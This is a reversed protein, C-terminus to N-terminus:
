KAAINGQYDVAVAFAKGDKRAEGRWVGYADKSLPGVQTFGNAQLRKRAQEQTFSNAGPVPAAPNANTIDPFQPSQAAAGGAASAAVLAIIVLRAM